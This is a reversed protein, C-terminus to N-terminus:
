MDYERVSNMKIEKKKDDLDKLCNSIYFDLAEAVNSSNYIITGKEMIVVRNAVKLIKRINNSVFLVAKNPQKVYEKLYDYCKAKFVSDGVALAEDIIFINPETALAISFALRAGMGSSYNGLPTDLQEGLESFSKIFEIKEEIEHKTMGYMAGKIYINERGTFLAKMGARLAFMPTIKQNERIYIRGTGPPYITSILRMLTTKGSGNEGVVGLIEGEKLDLNLHSIAWFEKKRLQMYDNRKGLLDFLLDKFGYYLNLRIDKSFKKNLNRVSLLTKPSDIAM